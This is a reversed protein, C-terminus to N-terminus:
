RVLKLCWKSLRSYIRGPQVFWLVLVSLYNIMASLDTSYLYYLACAHTTCIMDIKTIKQYKLLPGFQLVDQLFPNMIEPGLKEM